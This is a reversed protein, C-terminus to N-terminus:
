TRALDGAGVLGAENGLQAAIIELYPHVGAYPMYRDMSERIPNLLIDGADVVGGGIVVAEPNLVIALSAIGAGLYDGLTQFIALALADGERAAETIASGKLGAVTGDGKSLIARVSESDGDSLRKKLAERGHRLLATGSGYQEFCGLAGCGCLAGNPVVRIHGIEAAVGFSGRMLKGESVIGGGIGTGVTLMLINERGRGAGFKFEGWAAANGDNEIVVPLGIRSTLEQDLNVGNWDAINPTALITKRDASIFGAVSIGVSDITFEQVLELAVDAIVQTLAAGGEHPTDRRARHIVLGSEDVVGGLVKTGGIDIGITYGM